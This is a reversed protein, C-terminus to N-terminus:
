LKRFEKEIQEIMEKEKKRNMEENQRDIEKFIENANEVRSKRVLSVCREDLVKFPITLCYSDGKQKSNHIEFHKKTTNYFIKYNKDIEKIRNLIFYVDNRIEILM